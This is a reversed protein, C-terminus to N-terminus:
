AGLTGLVWAILEPANQFGVPFVSGDLPALGFAQEILISDNGCTTDMLEGCDQTHVLGLLHGIEHAVTNGLALAMEAVTPTSSFANRYSGTFIISSDRPDANHTDIQESIAFASRNAAGFYITSHPGAPAPHDDSNLLLLRFGAYRELVIEQIRTKIFDTQGAYREGLDAADFPPLDFVGVNPIRIGQGGRYNLYVVQTAPEPVGVGRTVTVSVRYSGTTNSGPFAVIGLYYPGAPGRIIVDIRPNLDSSDPTRDDNFAHVYQRADFLAATADLDGSTARVDIVAHDGPGLEGLDYLDLDGPGSIQGDFVIQDSPALAVKTANDFSFNGDKDLTGVSDGGLAGALDGSLPCGASGVLCAALLLGWPTRAIFGAGRRRAPLRNLLTHM